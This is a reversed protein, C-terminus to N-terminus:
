NFPPSYMLGGDQWLANKGRELGFPEGINRDYIEKYNGVHKIIRLTFDDSLGMGSGLNSDIGLFNKIERDQSNNYTSLNDSNINLEEAQILAFAVWKIVDFWRSDNNVVVPALPEQGITQSLIEHERPNALLIKRTILQSIDGTIAQCRNNEYANYLSEKDSATISNLEIDHEDKSSM